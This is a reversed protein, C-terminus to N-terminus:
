TITVKLSGSNDDFFGPADNITLWLPGCAKEISIVAMAGVAFIEGEDFIDSAGFRGILAGLPAKKTLLFDRGFVWHDFGRASCSGLLHVPTWHGEATIKLIAPAAIAGRVPTWLGSPPKAPIDFTSVDDLDEWKM